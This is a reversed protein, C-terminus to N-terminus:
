HQSNSYYASKKLYLVHELPTKDVKGDKDIVPNFEQRTPLINKATIVENENEIENFMKTNYESVTKLKPFVYQTDKPIRPDNKPFVRARLM